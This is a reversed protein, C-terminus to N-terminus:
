PRPSGAGHRTRCSRLLRAGTPVPRLAFSTSPASTWCYPASWAPAPSRAAFFLWSWAANLSLNVRVAAVLHTREGESARNWARGASWAITAYLPTWVAGFAWSPPQGRPTALGRYWASDGDVAAAGLAAAAVAMAASAYSRWRLGTGSGPKQRPLGGRGHRNVQPRGGRESILRVGVIRGREVGPLLQIPPSQSSPSLWALTRVPARVPSSSESVASTEDVM